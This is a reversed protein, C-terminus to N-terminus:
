RNTSLFTSSVHGPLMRLRWAAALAVSVIAPRIRFVSRSKPGHWAWRFAPCQARRMQPSMTVGLCGAAPCQGLRGPPVAVRRPPGSDRRFGRAQVSRPLGEHLGAVEWWQCGGGGGGGGGRHNAGRGRRLLDTAAARQRYSLRERATASSM